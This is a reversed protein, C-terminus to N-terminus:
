IILIQSIKQLIFHMPNKAKTPKDEVDKKIKNAINDNVTNYVLEKDKTSLKKYPNSKIIEDLTINEYDEKKNFRGGYKLIYEFAQSQKGSAEGLRGPSAEFSQDNLAKMVEDASVKYTFM